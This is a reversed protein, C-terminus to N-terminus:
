IRVEVDSGSLDARQHLRIKMSADGTNGREVLMIESRSSMLVEVLVEHAGLPTCGGCTFVDVAAYGAEPWTHISLHSEELVAVGSVGQPAFRHVVTQVVTAGAASAARKLIQEIRNPDDLLMTDCGWYEALFHQGKTNM